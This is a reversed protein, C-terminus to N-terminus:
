GGVRTTKYRYNKILKELEEENEATFRIYVANVKFVSTFAREEESLIEGRWGNGEFLYPFSDTVQKGGLEKFYMALHARNIGRFELDRNVM